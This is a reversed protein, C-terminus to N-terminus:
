NQSNRGRMNRSLEKYISFYFVVFIKINM